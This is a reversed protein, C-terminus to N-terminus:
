RGHQVRTKAIAPQGLLEWHMRLVFAILLCNMIVSSGGYSIFPLTLGKTPLAGAAVGMNVLAQMAFLFAIGFAALSVFHNQHL